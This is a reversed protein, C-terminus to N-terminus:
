CTPHADGVMTSIVPFSGTPVAWRATIHNLVPAAASAPKNSAFDPEDSMEALPLISRIHHIGNVRTGSLMVQTMRQTEAGRRDFFFCQIM